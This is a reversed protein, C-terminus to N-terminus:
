RRWRRSRTPTPPSASSRRACGRRRARMPSRSGRAAACDAARAGRGGRVAGLTGATAGSEPMPVAPPASAGADLLAEMSKVDGIVAAAILPSVGRVDQADFSGGNARLAAVWDLPRADAKLKAAAAGTTLV